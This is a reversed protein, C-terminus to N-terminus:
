ASRQGRPNRVRSLWVEHPDWAAPVKADEVVPDVTHRAVDTAPEVAPESTRRSIMQMPHHEVRASTMTGFTPQAKVLTPM